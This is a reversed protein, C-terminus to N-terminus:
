AVVETALCVCLVLTFLWRGAKTAADAPASLVEVACGGVCALAWASLVPVRLGPARLGLTVACLGLVGPLVALVGLAARAHRLPAPAIPLQRCADFLAATELRALHNVRTAVLLALAACAALWWPEGKHLFALGGCPVAVAASGLLLAWGTRRAPGRWLPLALLVSPWHRPRLARHVPRVAHQLPRVAGDAAGRLGQAVPQLAAGRPPRRLAQLLAVGLAWSGACALLLAAVARGQTPRLWVPHHTLVTAAGIALLVALPSLLMLTVAADSRVTTARPIPLAREAEAWAAPWLLSRAGWVCATGALTQLLVAPLLWVGHASAHFLPLVLWAAVAPIIDQWGAAGAGAVTAAVVLYTAWRRVFAKLALGCWRLRM